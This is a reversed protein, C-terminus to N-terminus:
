KKEPKVRKLVAARDRGQRDIWVTVQDGDVEGTFGDTQEGRTATFTFTNKTIKGNEIPITQGGNTLTGTLTAGKAILDLTVASGSKTEGQWKGTLGAQASAVLAWVLLVTAATLIRKM